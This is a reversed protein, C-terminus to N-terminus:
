SALATFRYATFPGAAKPAEVVTVSHSRPQMLFVYRQTSQLLKARTSGVALFYVAGGIGGQNSWGLFLGEDNAAMIPVHMDAISIRQALAGTASSFRLVEIHGQQPVYVWIWGGLEAATPWSQAAGLFTLLVPGVSIGGRKPMAHAVRLVYEFAANVVPIHQFAAYKPSQLLGFRRGPILPRCKTDPYYPSSRPLAPVGPIGDRWQCSTLDNQAPSFDNHPSGPYGLDKNTAGTPVRAVAFRAPGGRVSPGPARILLSGAGASLLVAVALVGAARSSTLGCM